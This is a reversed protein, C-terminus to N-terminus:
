LFLSDFVQMLPQRRYGGKWRRRMDAGEGVYIM